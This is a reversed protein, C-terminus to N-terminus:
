RALPPPPFPKPRTRIAPRLDFNRWIIETARTLHPQCGASVAKSLEVRRWGAAATLTDDYLASAYGSIVFKFYPPATTVANLFRTHFDASDAGTSDEIYEGGGTRRTSALYPPDAYFRAIGPNGAPDACNHEALQRVRDILRCADTNEVILDQIRAAVAPLRRRRSQFQIAISTTTSEGNPRNSFSQQLRCYFRRAMEVKNDTPPANIIRKFEAEGAPTADILRCLEDPEDRLCEWFNAVDGALDNAIEIRARPKNLLAALSGAFLEVFIDHPTRFQPLLFNLMSAKGGYYGGISYRKPM